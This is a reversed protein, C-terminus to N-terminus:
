GHMQCCVAQTLQLAHWARSCTQRKSRTGLPHPTLPAARTAAAALCRRCQAPAAAVGLAPPMRPLAGHSHQALPLPALDLFRAPASVKWRLTRQKDRTRSSARRRCGSATCPLWSQARAGAPKSCQPWPSAPRHQPKRRDLVGQPSTPFCALCPTEPGRAPACRASWGHSSLCQCGAHGWAERCVASGAHWCCWQKQLGWTCCGRAQM